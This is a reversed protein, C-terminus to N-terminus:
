AFIRSLSSARGKTTIDGFLKSLFSRTADSGLSNVSPLNRGSLFWGLRFTFLLASRNNSPVPFTITSISSSIAFDSSFKSQNRAILTSCNYGNGVVTKFSSSSLSVSRSSITQTCSSGCFIPPQNDTTSYQRAIACSLHTILYIHRGFLVAVASPSAFICFILWLFNSACYDL